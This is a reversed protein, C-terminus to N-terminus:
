ATVGNGLKMMTHLAVAKAALPEYGAAEAREVLVKGRASRDVTAVARRFMPDRLVSEPPVVLDARVTRMKFDSLAMAKAEDFPVRKRRALRFVQWAEDDVHELGAQARHKANVTASHQRNTAASRKPGRAVAARGLIQKTWGDERHRETMRASAAAAVRDRYYPDAMRARQICSRCLGTEGRGSTTNACGATRCPVRPKKKQGRWCSRCLGTTSYRARLNACGEAKCPRRHRAVPDAHPACSRCFPKSASQGRACDCKACPKLDTRALGQALVRCAWCRGSKSRHAMPSSCHICAIM